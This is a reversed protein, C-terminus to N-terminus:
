LPSTSKKRCTNKRYIHQVGKNVITEAIFMDALVHFFVPYTKTKAKKNNMLFM